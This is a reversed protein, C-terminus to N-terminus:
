MSFMHLKSINKKKENNTLNSQINFNLPTFMDNANFSLSTPAFLEGVRELLSKWLQQITTTTTQGSYDCFFNNLIM